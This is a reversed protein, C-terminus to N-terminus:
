QILYIIKPFMFVVILVMIQLAIFPVVSRYIELVKLRNHAVGKLYFLAFGFPPTLFSTQLNLAILIGFWVPDIGFNQMLPVFLPVFIFCIEIFDIFFGLLFILLMAVLMFAEKSGLIETFFSFLAEGGGSQAYILSFANAGILIGFILASYKASELSAYKILDLSFSRNFFTLIIAGIVGIAASETPTAIGYFIVGLVTVILFLTPIISRLTEKLLLGYDEVAECPPAYNEKINSIFVIYILYVLVLIVGPVLAAKFLDGVSVQLIDSLIILIVSPPIIQGLTGSSAIVGSSFSKDYGNKLMAPLAVVGMLVITAGVVGTTAALLAGILVVSIAMGGRFRSFLKASNELLNTALNSRELVLGMFVFLPVSILTYNQMIGYIRNPLLALSTIGIDPFIVACFLAAGGFAFMVPVGIFLFIFAIGFLVLAVM